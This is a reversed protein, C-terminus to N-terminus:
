VSNPRDREQRMARLEGYALELAEEESLAIGQERQHSWISELVNRVLYSRLAEEVIESDRKGQRAAAIRTRRLVDEDLYVTTKAKAM